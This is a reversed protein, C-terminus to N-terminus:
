PKVEGQEYQSPPTRSPNPESTARDARGEIISGNPMLAELMALCDRKDVYSEGWALIENNGGLVRFRYQGFLSRTQLGSVHLRM